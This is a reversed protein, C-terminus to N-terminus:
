VIVSLINYLEEDCVAALVKLFRVSDQLDKRSINLVIATHAVQHRRDLIADLTNEIFTRATPAGWKRDFVVKVSAFIDQCGCARYLSGVKKSNPNSRVIDGFVGPVILSQSVLASYNKFRAIKDSITENNVFPGKIAKEFVSRHNYLLMGEPINLPNVQLPQQTLRQFREDVMEKLFNEFAAVMLVAAGGRLGQVTKAAALRPPDNFRLEKRMLAEALGISEYFDKLATARTYM